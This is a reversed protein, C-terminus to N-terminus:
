VNKNLIKLHKLNKLMSNEYNQVAIIKDLLNDPLEIKYLKLYASCM